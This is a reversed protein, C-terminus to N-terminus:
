IDMYGLVYVKAECLVGYITYLYMPDLSYVTRTCPGKPTTDSGLAGLELSNWFLSNELEEASNEHSSAGTM